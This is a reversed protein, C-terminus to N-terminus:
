AGEASSEIVRLAGLGALLRRVRVRELRPDDYAVFVWFRDISAREFGEIEFAPRWLRPLGSLGLVAAFTALATLLVATEFTIPV